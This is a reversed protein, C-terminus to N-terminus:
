KREAKLHPKVEMGVCLALFLLTLVSGALSIKNGTYYVEPEFKFEVIHDGAPIDLGRLIYNVRKIEAESGDITAFWGEPYYVESFVAFGAHDGSTQYKLYNPTYDTLTIDGDGSIQQAINDFKSVDMVCSSDTSISGLAEIEEDPSNVEIINEVFWANGLAYPNQFVGQAESGAYFYKANLMNLVTLDQFAARGQQYNGIFTSIEPSIHKEILDQYRRIKAGHYGGISHHFYSTRAENFPNQLNLVKYKLSKDMKIRQDATTPTLIEENRTNRVYNDDSIYRSSVLIVDLSVLMFVLIFLTYINLKQKWYRWLILIFLSLFVLNRIADLRLIRARDSRLAELYWGPLNGLREDIAGKFSGMWSYLLVLVLIGGTIYGAYKCYQQYKQNGKNSLFAELGIFGFLPLIVFAM